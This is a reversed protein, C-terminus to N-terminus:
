SGVVLSLIIRRSLSAKAARVMRGSTEIKGLKPESACSSVLASMGTGRM